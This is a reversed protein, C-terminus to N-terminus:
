NKRNSDYHLFIQSKIKTQQLIYNVFINKDGSTAAAATLNGFFFHTLKKQMSAESKKLSTELRQTLQLFSNM